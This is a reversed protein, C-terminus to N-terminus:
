KSAHLMEKQSAILSGMVDVLQLTTGDGVGFADRFEEAMPGIHRTKDGKYSWQYIPLKKFKSSVSGPKIEKINEKLKRSSFAMAATGGAAAIKGWDISKNGGKMGSGFNALSSNSGFRNQLDYDNATNYEGAGGGSYLSQLGELGMGMRQLDMSASFRGGAAAADARQAAYSRDNEALNAIGSTGYQKGSRISEALGMEGGMASQLTQGRLSALNGESSAMGGAGALRNANVREGIDIEANRSADAMAGAGERSMRAMLAMKGPGYGGQVASARNAEDRMRGYMSPIASTARARLDTKQQDTYGGTKAFEDYVGGGRMRDITTQDYGLGKLKAISDEVGAQKTPDLGGTERYKNFDSEVTGFRPDTTSGNYPGAPAGGGGGGGGSGGAAGSALSGYATRLTSYLDDGHAKASAIDAQNRAEADDRQKTEWAGGSSMMANADKQNQGGGM